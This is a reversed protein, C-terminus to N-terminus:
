SSFMFLVNYHRNLSLEYITMVLSKVTATVRLLLRCDGLCLCRIMEDSASPLLFQVGYFRISHIYRRVTLAPPSSHRSM